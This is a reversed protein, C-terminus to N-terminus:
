RTQNRKDQKIVYMCRSNIM